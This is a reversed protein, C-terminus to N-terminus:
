SLRNAAAIPHVGRSEDPLLRVPLEVIVFPFGRRRPVRRLGRVESM